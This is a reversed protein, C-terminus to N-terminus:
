FLTPNRSCCFSTIRVQYGCVQFCDLWLPSPLLLLGIGHDFLISSKTLYRSSGRNHQSGPILHLTYLEGYENHLSIDISQPSQNYHQLARQTLDMESLDGRLRQQPDLAVQVLQLGQYPKFQPSVKFSDKSYQSRLQKPTQSILNDSSKRTRTLRFKGNHRQVIREM